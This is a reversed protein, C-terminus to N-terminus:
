TIRETFIWVEEGGVFFIVSIQMSIGGLVFRQGGLLFGGKGLVIGRGWYGSEACIKKM